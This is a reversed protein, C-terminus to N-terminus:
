GHMLREYFGGFAGNTSVLHIELIWYRVGANSDPDRLRTPNDAAIRQHEKRGGLYKHPFEAVIHGAITGGFRWGDRVALECAFAYLEAGTVDTEAEFRARVEDFHRPLDACLAHKRPDPGVAYSRGVDAEWEGFVPGLDLFVMDDEAITRDAPNDGATALTNAGARVIRKHWHRTVGFDRAAMIRIDQEVARESRGPAILGAAEIADLMALARSEAALLASLRDPEKMLQM